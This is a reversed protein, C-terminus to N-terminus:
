LDADMLQLRHSLEGMRASSLETVVTLRRKEVITDVLQQELEKFKLSYFSYLREHERSRFLNASEIQELENPVLAHSLEIKRFRIKTLRQLSKLEEGILKMLEDTSLLARQNREHEEAMGRLEGEVDKRSHDVMMEGLRSQRLALPQPPKDVEPVDASLYVAMYDDSPHSIGGHGETCLSSM